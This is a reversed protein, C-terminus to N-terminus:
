RARTDRSIPDNTQLSVIILVIVIVAVILVVLAEGAYPRVMAWVNELSFGEFDKALYKYM